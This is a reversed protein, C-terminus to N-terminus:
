IEEEFGYILSTPSSADIRGMEERAASRWILASLYTPLRKMWEPLSKISPVDWVSLEELSTLRCM